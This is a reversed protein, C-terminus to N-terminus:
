LAAPLSFLRVANATTQTEIEQISVGKVEALKLATYRVMSPECKKGRFPVPALYPSDTEVLLRDLPFERAAERLAESNKFTLVGSFSIYFGLELCARGFERTGTFCHLVGPARGSELQAAYSKLEELMDAEADRCHVIVPKALKRALDLQKRFLERQIERPSFDYYYDLGIEGIGVCKPHASSREVIELDEPKIKSGEHPHIGVTHFIESFRDSLAQCSRITAADVGITILREVGALRAEHVLNEPKKGEFEYYLHCHTDILM